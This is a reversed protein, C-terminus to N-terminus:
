KDDPAVSFVGELMGLMNQRRAKKLHLIFCMSLSTPGFLLSKFYLDEVFYIM